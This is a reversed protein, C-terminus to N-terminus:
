VGTVPNVFNHKHNVTLHKGSSALLGMPKFIVLTLIYIM